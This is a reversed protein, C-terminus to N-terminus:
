RKPFVRLNKHVKALGNWCELVKLGNALCRTAPSSLGHFAVSLFTLGRGTSEATQNAVRLETNKWIAEAVDDVSM